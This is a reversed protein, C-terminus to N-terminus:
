NEDLVERATNLLEALQYPKGVYGKAGAEMSQEVQGNISYGSAIVVKVEPNIKLLEQLCRHGGMGPMGLDMLVLDIDTSKSSYIELADEGSTATLVTYGFKNFVRSAFDRIPAEDDVLLVTESGGKTKEGSVAKVNDMEAQEIAPLYIKFVTGQGIESYCTIYGGHSKIIGYVSALGLGTGKGIEKTTFFPDFIHSVTERDMGHGTDSVSLLVYNGPKAEINRKVYQEGLTVNKTEIVFNGGDPMAHAANTGLNLLIQEMQVSDANITWLHGSLHLDINIMRPIIRELMRRANEVEQNVDIPRREPQSRRSFQLLQRVLLAARNGANQISTLSPYDMDNSNKDMLLMQTHGNIAQLLNNFDHAIGGALTGIAELKQSQQLQAQLKEKGEEAEIKSTIDLLVMRWQSVSDDEERDAELDARVWLVPGDETKLRLEISQKEGTEACKQRATLYIDEWGPRIFSSFTSRLLNGRDAALLAVATLNADTIIGKANLTLYGCPAFEYLNEFKHQLDTIEQQARRLEENQIELEVQHVRLEHILELIDPPTHSTSTPQQRILEEAQIRLQDFKGSSEQGDFM